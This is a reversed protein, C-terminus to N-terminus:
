PSMYVKGWRVELKGNTFLELAKVLAKTELAQGKARITRLTDSQTVQFAEQWIIPGEDLDQTVYHATCGIIKAGREYAQDYAMAGPFAPLLSPHINIIKNPYRWVFNPSLIRMYRALAIADANHKELIKLIKAEREALELDAVEYFPVHHREAVSRLENESGVIVPIKAKLRGDKVAELIGDLCHAEKTVMVALNMDRGTEQYRVGVEMGFEKGLQKLGNVMKAKNPASGFSAELHMGFLDRVVSQNVSEINGGNSFIFNTFSAVVGKRDKGVVTFEVITKQESM